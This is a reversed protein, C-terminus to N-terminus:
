AATYELDAALNRAEKLSRTFTWKVVYGSSHKERWLIEFRMSTPKHKDEVVTVLAGAQGITGGIRYHRTTM